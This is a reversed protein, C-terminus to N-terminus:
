VPKILCKKAAETCQSRVPVFAQVPTIIVYFFLAVSDAYTFSTTNKIIFATVMETYRVKLVDKM